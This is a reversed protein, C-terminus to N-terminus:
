SAFYIKLSSIWMWIMVDRLEDRRVDRLEDRRVDRLVDRREDREMQWTSECALHEILLSRIGSMQVLQYALKMKLWFAVSELVLRTTPLYM